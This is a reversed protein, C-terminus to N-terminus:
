LEGKFPTDALLRKKRLSGRDRQSQSTISVMSAAEATANLGSFAETTEKVSRFCFKECYNQASFQMEPPFIIYLKKYPKRPRMPVVSDM